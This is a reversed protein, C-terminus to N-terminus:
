KNLMKKGNVIVVGKYSKTVRQGALNYMPANTDLNENFEVNAVGTAEGEVIVLRAGAVAPVKSTPVHLYAKGAGIAGAASYPHFAGSKLGMNTYDGDTPQVYTPSLVGVLLNAPETETETTAYAIEHAGATGKILLGVGGRVAGEVKTVTIKAADKDVADVDAVRYATVETNGTFDLPYESCLTGWGSSPVTYTLKSKEGTINFSKIDWRGTNTSAGDSIYRFIIRFKKNLLSALNTENTVYTNYNSNGPYTNITLEQETDGVKAFLKMGDSITGFYQCAHSITLKASEYGTLDYEDTIYDYTGARRDTSSVYANASIYNNTNNDKWAQFNDSRTTTMTWSDPVYYYQFDLDVLEFGTPPTTKGGVANVTVNIVKNSASYLHEADAPATITITTTGAAVATVNGSADVTAIGPTASEYTLTGAYGSSTTAGIATEDDGYTMEVDSATIVVPETVSITRKVSVAEYNTADTPTLTLTVDATGRGAATYAGTAADTINIVDSNSSTWAKTNAAESDKTYEFTGTADKALTGPDTIAVNAAVPQKLATFTINSIVPTGGSRKLTVATGSPFTYKGNKATQATEGVLVSVSAGSGSYSFTMEFGYPATITSSTMYGPTNKLQVTKGSYNGFDSGSWKYEDGDSSIFFVTKVNDTVHDTYNDAASFDTFSLTEGAAITIADKQAAVKTYTASTVNSCLGDEDIVRAKVTTTKTLTLAETYLTCNSKDVAPDNGDTTYYIPGTPTGDNAMVLTMSGNFNGETVGTPTFVPKSYKYTSSHQFTFSAPKYTTGEKQTVTLTIDINNGTKLVTFNGEETVQITSPDASVYSYTVDNDTLTGALTINTPTFSGTQGIFVGKQPWIKANEGATAVVTRNDTVNVTATNSSANYSDNGEFTATITASGEGVPYVVGANSVTAVSEDDSEWKITPNSMASEGTPTVTATLTGTNGGYSLNLSTPDLTLTTNTKTPTYTVEIKTIIAPANSTLSSQRKAFLKLQSYNSNTPITFTTTASSSPGKVQAVVENGDNDTVKLYYSSTWTVDISTIKGPVTPTQIYNANAKGITISTNAVTGYGKAKWTYSGIVFSAETESYNGVNATVATTADFTIKDAWM